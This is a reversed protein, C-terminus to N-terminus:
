LIALRTLTKTRSRQPSQQVLHNYNVIWFYIMTFIEIIDKKKKWYAIRDM